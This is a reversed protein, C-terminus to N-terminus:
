LTHAMKEKILKEAEEKGIELASARGIEEVLRSPNKVFEDKSLPSEVLVRYWKGGIMLVADISSGRDTKEVEAIGINQGESDALKFMYGGEITESFQEASVQIGSLALPQAERAAAPPQAPAPAPAPLAEEPVPARRFRERVAEIKEPTTAERVVEAVESDNVRKYFEVVLSGYDWTITKNSPDVEYKIRVRVADGKDSGLGTVIINYLVSNLEGVAMAIRNTFERDSKVLDRLQAFVTRKIKKAYAGAIVIGTNLELTRTESM